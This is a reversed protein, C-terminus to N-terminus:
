GAATLDDDDEECMDPEKFSDLFEAFDEAILKLDPHEPWDDPKFTQEQIWSVDPLVERWDIAPAQGDSNWLYVRGHNEGRVALCVRDASMDYAVPIVEDPLDDRMNEIAWWLNTYEELQDDVILFTDLTRSRYHAPVPKGGNHRLLFARYSAPLSAGLKSEMVRIDDEDLRPGSRIFERIGMPRSTYSM